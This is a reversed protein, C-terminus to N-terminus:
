KCGQMRRALYWESLLSNTCIQMRKKFWPVDDPILIRKISFSDSGVKAVGRDITFLAKYGTEKAISVTRESYRGYPWCLYPCPRALRGEIAKKSEGLEEVLQSDSLEDCSLHSKTHSYFDILCSDAMNQVHEWTLVVRHEQGTQVLTKSQEHSPISTPIGQWNASAKATWDTILFVTAHLHYRDLIPFAYILNDIWGDDFTIVVAKQKVHLTGNIFAFLQDISLAKYGANALYAMQGEFVEPTVTLMDGKRPNIHHYMLVPVPNM